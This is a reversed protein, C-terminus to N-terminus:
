QNAKQMLHLLKDWNGKPDKILGGAEIHAKVAPDDQRWQETPLFVLSAVKKGKYWESPSRNIFSSYDVSTAGANLLSCILEDSTGFNNCVDEVIVARDGIRVEHRKIVLKTKNRVESKTDSHELFKKEAFIGRCGLAEAVITSLKIGGMPAGVVVDVEGFTEAIKQALMEAFYRLIRPQEEAKAFNFYIKGVFHELTGDGVEYKGAYPTLSGLLKGDADEPCKYYGSCNNLTAIYDGPVIRIMNAKKIEAITMQRSKEASVNNDPSGKVLQSGMVVYTASDNLAQRVGIIRQQHDKAMWRDRIGPVIYGYKYGLVSRLFKLEKGSCVILDFPLEPDGDKPDTAKAAAYEEEINRVDELIKTDPHKGHRKRCADPKMDTGVSFLALKTKPLGRRLALFGEGTAKSSVTLIGPQREGFHKAINKLTEKVDATKLDLFIDAEKVGSEELEASLSEVMAPASLDKMFAADNIKVYAILARMDEESLIEKLKGHLKGSEMFGDLPLIVVRLNSKM